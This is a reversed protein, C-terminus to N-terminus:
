WVDHHYFQHLVLMLIFLLLFHQQNKVLSIRVMKKVLCVDSTDSPADKTDDM